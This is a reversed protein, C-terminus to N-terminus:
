LDRVLRFGVFPTRKNPDQFRRNNIRCYDSKDIWSGGRIVKATGQPTSSSQYANKDYWDSCWESVNGSLDHLGFANAKKQGVTQTGNRSNKKYYGIDSLRDSGAYTFDEGATAAYEWEAETPLRYNKGPDMQNLQKIFKLADHYTVNEVPCGPCQQFESPNEGMITEYQRQTVEHKSMIFKGITVQKAPGEDGACDKGKCGLLFNGKPLQLVEANIEQVLEAESSNLTINTEKLSETIQKTEESESENIQPLEQILNNIENKYQSQPYEKIFGNLKDITPSIIAAEYDKREAEEKLEKIREVVQNKYPSNPYKLMYGELEAVIPDNMLEKYETIELQKLIQNQYPSNPYAQMYAKLESTSPDAILEKYVTKELQSIIKNKYPSNPYKSLFKNLKEVTPESMVDEYDKAEDIPVNNEITTKSIGTAGAEASGNTETNITTSPGTTPNEAFIKSEGDNSKDIGITTGTGSSQANVIDTPDADGSQFDIDGNEDPSDENAKKNLTVIAADNKLVNYVAPIGFGFPILLLLLAYRKKFQRKAPTGTSKTKVAQAKPSATKAAAAKAERRSRVIRAQEKEKAIKRKEAQRDQEKQQKRILQRKRDEEKQQKDRKAKTAKEKRESEAKAEQERKAKAEQDRKAQDEKQKKAKEERDIKAQKKQETKRLEEEKQEREKAEIKKVEIQEKELKEKEIIELKFREKEIKEKEIREKEIKEQEIREHEEKEKEIRKLELRENESRENEVREKEIREQELRKKEIRNNKIRDQEVRENEIREKEIRDNEIREQELREQEIREKEIAIQREDLIVTQDVDIDSGGAPEIITEEEYSQNTIPVFLPSIGAANVTIKSVDILDLLTSAKSTRKAADKVLCGRIVDAYGYPCENVEDPIPANVIQQFVQRRRGEMSGTQTDARFPRLGKWVEFLIIGLSWIDARYGLKRGQLQEPSSYALTGGGFSNSIVSYDDDAILKSLGFDSIKASYEEQYKSILINSPKLDRHIIKNDHLFALGKILGKCLQHKQEDNLEDTELLEKLNGAEYYQMIAYDFLGNSMQIQYANEYNAIHKHDPLSKTANVEDILSFKKGEIYKVQAVKIALQRDLVLDYAKYVTGFAGEGIKDDLSDFRYRTFFEKENM